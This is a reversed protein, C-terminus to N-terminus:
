KILVMKRTQVFEGAKIQYLYIGASVPLNMSNTASWLVTHYGRNQVQEVLRNVEHGRLDYITLTVATEKPLYYQMTTAPNFPNPYNPLLRFKDAITFNDDPTNLNDISEYIHYEWGTLILNTSEIFSVTDGSFIDIYTGYYLTDLLAAGMYGPSLNYVAFIKSNDKERIFAFVDQESSTNVRKLLGGKDKNWLAPNNKKLNLLTTYISSFEHDNWTIQDKDFFSLRKNLGAEQGGYLMVLSNMTTTLAMLSKVADGFQEFVTGHWANEDHNSLFYLRDHIAGYTDLENSLYSDLEAADSTNNVIRKLIGNGFGHLGWAYSMDFGASKYQPGDAEALLLLEPKIAKLQSIASYWFNLPVYSAADCRFGDVDAEAIWYAMAQIMYDRLGQQDYDLEIVDSWNTGPPPIFDGNSDTVYWEPHSVTLVNDWSTHNAVWDIIVYMGMAHITDVLAVFEDFTGFESNVALYDRVAYPSGLSGLRNEMGIPHLPMFYIIGVGMEQLRPLHERFAAFTGAATYQRTNVEYITLNCSWESHDGAALAPPALLLSYLLTGFTIKIIRSNGSQIKQM